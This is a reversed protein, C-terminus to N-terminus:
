PIALTSSASGSATPRSTGNSKPDAPYRVLERGRGKLADVATFILQREDPSREAFLCLDSPPRACRVGFYAPASLVLEPSGGDVPVSRDRLDEGHNSRFNPYIDWRHVDRFHHVINGSQEIIRNRCLPTESRSVFGSILSVLASSCCTLFTASSKNSVSFRPLNTSSQFFRCVVRAATRTV